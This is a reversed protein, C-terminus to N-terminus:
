KHGRLYHRYTTRLVNDMIGPSGFGDSFSVFGLKHHMFHATTSLSEVAPLFNYGSHEYLGGVTGLAPALIHFIVCGESGLAFLPLLYPLLIEFCFDSNAMYFAGAACNAKTSHHLDHGFRKYGWRSHLLYRHGIYFIVDHGIGMVALCAALSPVSNFLVRSNYGLALRESLLMAPLMLVVQNFLIRPMMEAYTISDGAPQRRFRQLWKRRDCLELFGCVTHFTVMLSLWALFATPFSKPVHMQDLPFLYLMKHLKGPSLTQSAM